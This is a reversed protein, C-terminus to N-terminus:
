PLEKTLNVRGYQNYINADHQEDIFKQENKWKPKNLLKEKFKFTNPLTTDVLGKKVSTISKFTNYIM